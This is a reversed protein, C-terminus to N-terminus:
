SGGCRRPRLGFYIGGIRRLPEHKQFVQAIAQEGIHQRRAAVFGHEGVVGHFHQRLKVGLFRGDRVVARVGPM